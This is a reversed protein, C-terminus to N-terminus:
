IFTRLGIALLYLAYCQNLGCMSAAISMTPDRRLSWRSMRVMLLVLPSFPLFYRGQVGQISLEPSIPNAMLMSAMIGIFCVVCIAGFLAKLKPSIAIKDSANKQASVGLIPIYALIFLWPAAIHTQRHFWGLTGGLFNNLYFSGQDLITSVFLFIFDEPHMLIEKLSLRRGVLGEMPVASAESGAESGSSTQVGAVRLAYELSFVAFSAFVVIFLMCRFALAERASSFRRGPIFLALLLLPFYVVKCPVLLAALIIIGVEETRKVKGHGFICRLYLAIFLFALGIIIPDYSYSSALHISSPLFALAMFIPKGIPAIKVAFCVMVVFAILNFLRGLYFTFFGNLGFAQGALIGLSSPIRVQPLTDLTINSGYINGVYIREAKEAFVPVAEEGIDRYWQNNLQYDFRRQFEFDTLRMSISEDSGEIGQFFNAYSYAKTYHFEEDPVSGPLFIASFSLGTTLLLVICFALTRDKSHGRMRFAFAIGAAIAMAAASFLTLFVLSRNHQGAAYVNYQYFFFGVALVLLFSGICSILFGYPGHAFDVVRNKGEILRPTTKM